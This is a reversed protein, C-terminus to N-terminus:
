YLGRALGGGGLFFREISPCGLARGIVGPSRHGPGSIQGFFFPFIPKKPDTRRPPESFDDNAMYIPLFIKKSWKYHEFYNEAGEAGSNMIM